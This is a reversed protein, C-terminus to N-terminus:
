SITLIQCDLGFYQAFQGITPIEGARNNMWEDIGATRQSPQDFRLAFNWNQVGEASKLRAYRHERNRFEDPKESILYAARM